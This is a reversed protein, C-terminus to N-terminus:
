DFILTISITYYQPGQSFVFAETAFSINGFSNGPFYASCFGINLAYDIETSNETVILSYKRDILDSDIVKSDKLGPFSISALKNM